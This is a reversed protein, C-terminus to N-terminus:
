WKIESLHFINTVINAIIRCAVNVNFAVKKYLIKLIRSNKRMFVWIDPIDLTKERM